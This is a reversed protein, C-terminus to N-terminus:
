IRIIARLHMGQNPVGGLQPICKDLFAIFNAVLYICFKVVPMSVKATYAADDIFREVMSSEASSLNRAWRRLARREKEEIGKRKILAVSM